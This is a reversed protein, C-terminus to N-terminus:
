FNIKMRLLLRYFHEGFNFIVMGSIIIGGGILTVSDPIEGALIFGFISALFPTLFMYNSVQATHRAKSFAKAWALYAIASSGIGLVAIYVYQVMPAHSIERMAAPAFVALLITGSLISYTTTELATYNKTLRRQLINYLSLSVAALLLWVVGPNLSLANDMLSIVAVGIFEVFIAIWQFLKLKENYMFCAFLATIVPVTSIIVSGTASSVVAQGANFVIMYIFFGFCGSLIFVPIDNKSPLKIRIFYAIVALICVAIVYRIFGLSFISFHQLALRTLVYALSWFVITVLAYPHFSNRFSMGANWAIGQNGLHLM